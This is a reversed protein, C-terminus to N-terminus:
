ENRNSNEEDTASEGEQLSGPLPGTGDVGVVDIGAGDESMAVQDTVAHGTFLAFGGLQDFSVLTLGISVALAATLLTALYRNSLPKQPRNM